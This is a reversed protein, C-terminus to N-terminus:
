NVLKYTKTFEIVKSVLTQLDLDNHNKEPFYVAQKPESAHAFLEKGLTFPVLTDKEGHFLLLPMNINAIKSLSDYRDKLLINVPLWPYHYKVAETMSTFPSQLMLAAIKYETAMQVAVGSGISEGYIIIKNDAISLTKRAYDMTARADDYFGEESPSGESNGYGRYDLALVGFGADRLLSFFVARNALSAANGHFFIITPYNEKAPHYWTEINTGDSTKLNTRSFDVLGYSAPPEINTLPLYMFNRQMGFM